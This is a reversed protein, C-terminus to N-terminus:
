TSTPGSKSKSNFLLKRSSKKIADNQAEVFKDVIRIMTLIKSVPQTELWDVSSDWRQKCLHFSVTLWNEVTMIKEEMLNEAAWIFIKRAQFISYNDLAEPNLILRSILSIQSEKKERLVQAYYYDRPRLERFHIPDKDGLSV